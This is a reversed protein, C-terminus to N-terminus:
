NITPDSLTYERFGLNDLVRTIGRTIKIIGFLASASLKVCALSEVKHTTISQM